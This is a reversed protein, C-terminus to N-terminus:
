RSMKDRIVLVSSVLVVFFVVVAMIGISVLAFSGRDLLLQPLKPALCAYATIGSVSLMPISFLTNKFVSVTSARDLTAQLENLLADAEKDVTDQSILYSLFENIKEATPEVGSNHEKFADVYSTVKARHIDRVVLPRLRHFLQQISNM